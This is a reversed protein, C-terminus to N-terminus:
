PIVKKAEAFDEQAWNRGDVGSPDFDPTSSGLAL